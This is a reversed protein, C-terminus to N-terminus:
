LKLDSNQKALFTELTKNFIVAQDLPTGHRSNKIISLKANKIRSTILKKESIPTYDFEAGIILTPCSIENLRETIKWNLIARMSKLYAKIDNKAWRMAMDERIQKHEPKPFLKNALVKGMKRMGMVRVIFFRLFVQFREKFTNQPFESFSNVIILSKVLEPQDIAQQMAIMGGLSIGTVHVEELALKKILCSVDETFLSISYEGTAKDSKGHGRIDFVVVQYHKSFYEIQAKWDHSSSGLGHIFLLPNGEGYIEYYLNTSNCSLIPM